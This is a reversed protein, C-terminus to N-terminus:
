SETIELYRKYQEAWLESDQPTYEKLQISNAIIRRMAWIDGVEGVAKAQVMINGLATGEQPGALM